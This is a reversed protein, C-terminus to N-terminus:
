TVPNESVGGPSGGISGANMRKVYGYWRIKSDKIEDQIRSLMLIERIKTNM